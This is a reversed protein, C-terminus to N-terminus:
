KEKTPAPGAECKCPKGLRVKQGCRGCTWVRNRRDRINRSTGVPSKALADYMRDLAIDLKDDREPTTKM